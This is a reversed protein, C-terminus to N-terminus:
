IKLWLKIKKLSWNLLKILNEIVSLNPFLNFNQFVMGMSSTIKKINDKSTYDSNLVLPNEGYFISGEDIKDLNILCRLLTSKGSGSPGIISIIDGKNVSFSINKLVENNDFSKKINSAKIINM